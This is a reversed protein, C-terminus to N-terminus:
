NLRRSLTFRCFKSLVAEGIARLISNAGLRCVADVLRRVVFHFLEPYAKGKRGWNGTSTRSVIEILREKLGACVVQNGRDLGEDGGDARSSLGWVNEVVECGNYGSGGLYNGFRM